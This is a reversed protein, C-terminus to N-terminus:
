VGAGLAREIQRRQHRGRLAPLGARHAARRYVEPSVLHANTRDVGERDLADKWATVEPLTLDPTVLELLRM